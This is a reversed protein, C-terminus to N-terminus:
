GGRRFIKLIRKYTLMIFCSIALIIATVLTTFQNVEMTYGAVTVYRDLRFRVMKSNTLYLERIGGLQKGVYVSIRLDGGIVNSFTVEGNPGTIAKVSTVTTQQDVKVIANPIPQGFHDSVIVTFNINYFRLPIFLFMTQYLSVLTENLLATGNYVRIRYKGFTLSLSANGSSDTVVSDAPETLGSSWEYARIEVGKLPKKKSDEVHLFISYAPLNITIKNLPKREIEVPFSSLWKLGYREAEVTYNVNIFLNHLSGTGSMNTETAVTIGKYRLSLKVFPVPKNTTEEVVTIELNSLNIWGKVRSITDNTVPLTLNGVLIDKWFANLSYSGNALMFSAWGTENTSSERASFQEPVPTKNQAKILLGEIPKNALNGAWVQVKWVEVFFSATAVTENTELNKATIFYEGVLGTNADKFEGWYNISRNGFGADDAKITINVTSFAGSPNTVNINFTFNQNPSAERIEITITTNEGMHIRVPSVLISVKYSPAASLTPIFAFPVIFMWLLFFTVAKKWLLKPTMGKQNRLM